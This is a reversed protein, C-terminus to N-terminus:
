SYITIGLPCHGAAKKAIDIHEPVSGGILLGEPSDAADHDLIDNYKGLTLLDSVGYYDVVASVEDTQESYLSQSSRM